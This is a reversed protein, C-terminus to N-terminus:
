LHGHFFIIRPLSRAGDRLAGPSIPRAHVSQGVAVDLRRNCAIRISDRGVPKSRRRQDHGLWLLLDADPEVAIDELMKSTIRSILRADVRDQACRHLVLSLGTSRLSRKYSASRAAAGGSCPGQMCGGRHRVIALCIPQMGRWDGLSPNPIMSNPM